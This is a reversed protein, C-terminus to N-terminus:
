ASMRKAQQIEATKVPLRIIFKSGQGPESEVAVEGGHAQV